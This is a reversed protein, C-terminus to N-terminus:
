APNSYEWPNIIDVGCDAFDAVNRTALTVQHTRCIAAIQADFQSIPSGTRRRTAAIESFSEASASCFFLIKGLFDERFMSHATDRLLRQRTGSPLIAIGYLIEAETVTTIFLLERETALEGM